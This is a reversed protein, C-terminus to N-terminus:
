KNLPSPLGPQRAVHVTILSLNFFVDTVEVELKSVYGCGQASRQLHEPHDHRHKQDVYDAAVPVQHWLSVMLKILSM